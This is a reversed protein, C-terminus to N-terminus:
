LVPVDFCVKGESVSCGDKSYLDAKWTQPSDCGYGQCEGGDPLTCDPNKTVLPQAAWYTIHGRASPGHSSAFHHDALVFNKAYTWYNPIQPEDYILFPLFKKEPVSSLDFGNMKGDAYSRLGCNLSHCIDDPLIGPALKRKAGTSLTATTASTAGPFGSFYNDFSHNEKVIVVVYRIKSPIPTLAPGADRGSDIGADELTLPGDDEEVEEPESGPRSEDSEDAAPQPPVPNNKSCAAFCLLGLSALGSCGIWSLRRHM